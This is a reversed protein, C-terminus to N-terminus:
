FSITFGESLSREGDYMIIIDNFIYQKEQVKKQKHFPYHELLEQELNQNYVFPDNIYCWFADCYHQEYGVFIVGICKELKQDYKYQQTLRNIIDRAKNIDEKPCTYSVFGCGTRAIVMTRPSADEFNLAINMSFMYREKFVQLEGRTLKAIEKFIYYYDCEKDSKIIKDKFTYLIGMVDWDSFEQKLSKFYIIYDNSPPEEHEKSLFQGIIAEEFISSILKQHQNILKERFSLYEEIETITVLNEVIM